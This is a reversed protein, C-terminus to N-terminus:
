SKGPLTPLLVLVDLDSNPRFDERLASGFVSFEIIQWKQCFTKLSEIPLNIASLKM